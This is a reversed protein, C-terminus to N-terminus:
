KVDVRVNCPTRTEEVCRLFMLIKKADEREHGRNRSIVNKLTIRNWFTPFPAGVRIAYLHYNVESAKPHSIEGWKDLMECFASSPHHIQM